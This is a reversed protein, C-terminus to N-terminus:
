TRRPNLVRIGKEEAEEEINIRKRTGVSHGIRAAQLKPDIKELDGVNYVMVEAFGSPHLNRTEAPSGYGISV